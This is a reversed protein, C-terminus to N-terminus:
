DSVLSVRRDRYHARVDRLISRLRSAPHGLRRNRAGIDFLISWQRFLVGYARVLSWSPDYLNTSESTVGNLEVIAFGRGAAFERPDTYRVDFRGFFFGDFRRAIADIADNLAPTILHAGDRFLTGQCHNGAITLPLTEGPRLVSRALGDMRALFTDAQMRLRPHRWILSEVTSVGDGVVQPFQKDTISFIRGRADGPMRVYFIGAEFPGPHYAQAVLTGPHERLYRAASEADRIRRVGAGRQGADPKLIIPFDWSRATLIRSLESVRERPPGPPILATPVIWEPPLRSLIEFKSEGVIGGHPQIGPNAATPVTLGRHRIALYAIWPALPIYFLWAPWFEWRWLRSIRAWQRARGAPTAARRAFRIFAWALLGAAVFAMGGAGLFREVPAVIGRGFLAVGSVLLPTWLAAAVFAPLAFHVARRGLMGAALYMPLRTGPLFRAAIVAKWGQAAFWSELNELSQAPLRRRVWDWDLLRRGVVRGVLWLGLDSVFIGLLCAIVGTPWDIERAHIMLGAGICTLDESVFTGFFLAIAREWASM